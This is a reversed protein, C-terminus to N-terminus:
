AASPLLIHELVQGYGYFPPNEKLVGKKALLRHLGQLRYCPVSAMFHHEMHYNVYNTAFFFREWWRPVTTRTNLRPDDSLPNAVGAHEALQRVRVILMFATMFSFVWLLYAWPTFLWTLLAAFVINSLLIHAFPRASARKEQDGSFIGRAFTFVVKMLKWGTQGTLDRIIKRKFRERSVPYDQYNGLDPDEATGALRHHYAHTSAYYNVDAFTPHAGFYQGVFRNLSKNEFLTNHGCEHMIVSLGLQRGALFPVSLLIVLPNPWLTCVTFILLVALWNFAVVWAGRWNSKRTFHAIEEKSLIDQPKM